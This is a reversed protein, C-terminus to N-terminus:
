WINNWQDFVEGVKFKCSFSEKQGKALKWEIEMMRVVQRLTFLIHQSGYFLHM